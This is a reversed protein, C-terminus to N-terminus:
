GAGREWMTSKTVRWQNLALVTNRYAVCGLYSRAPSFPELRWQEHAGRDGAISVIRPEDEPGLTVEVRALSEAIGEGTAKLFAEKRTWCSYFAQMRSDPPLTMLTQTENRLFFRRAIGETEAIERTREIDVGIPCASAIACVAVGASHSTNFFLQTGAGDTRLEPKGYTGYQFEIASPLQELYRGLILRLLGHRVVYRNRGEVFRFKEAEAQEAPSLLGWIKSVQVEFEDLAAAWLHIQGPDLRITEPAPPWHLVPKDDELGSRHVQDMSSGNPVGM